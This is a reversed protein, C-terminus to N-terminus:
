VYDFFDRLTQYARTVTYVLAAKEAVWSMTELLANSDPGLYKVLFYAGVGLLTRRFNKKLTDANARYQTINEKVLDGLESKASQLIAM